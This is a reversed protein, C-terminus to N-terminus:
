DDQKEEEGKIEKGAWSRAEKVVFVCCGNSKEGILKIEEEIKPLKHWIINNGRVEWIGGQFDEINFDKEDIIRKVRGALLGQEPRSWIEKKYQIVGHYYPIQESLAEDIMKGMGVYFSGAGLIFSIIVSGLVILYGRYRYGSKTHKYEYYDAALIFSLLIIWFYPLSIFIYNLFSKDLYRYIDWDNEYTTHLIVAFSLSGVMISAGFASWLVYNKLRCRWKPKPTIKEVKIKEIIKDSISTSM